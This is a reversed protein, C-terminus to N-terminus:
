VHRSASPTVHYIDKYVKSFYAFSDYGVACAIEGIPLDTAELLKKAHSMKRSIIFETCTKGTCTKIITSVYDPSLFLTNAIDKRTLPMNLNEQIYDVIQQYYKRLNPADPLDLVPDDAPALIQFISEAKTAGQNQAVNEKLLEIAQRTYKMSNFCVYLDCKCGLEKQFQDQVAKFYATYSEEYKGYVVSCITNHDTYYCSCFLNVYNLSTQLMANYQDVLSVIDLPLRMWRTIRTRLFILPQDLNPTEGIEALYSLREKLANKHEATYTDLPWDEYFDRIISIKAGSAFKNLPLQSAPRKEMIRVKANEVARLIDENRAPQLVYDVVGLSIAQKAYFFDPHSTLFICELDLKQRRVWSLLSIGNEVPMEIDTIMLDITEKSLIDRAIFASTATFINTIGLEHWDIHDLLSALINSQDDVLLLNM